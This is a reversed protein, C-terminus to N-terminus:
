SLIVLFPRFSKFVIRIGFTIKIIVKNPRDDWTEYQQLDSLQMGNYEAEM